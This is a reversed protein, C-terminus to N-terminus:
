NLLDRFVHALIDERAVGLAALDADSAAELQIIQRLRARKMTGPNFGFGRSAFFNDIKANLSTHGMTMQVNDRM